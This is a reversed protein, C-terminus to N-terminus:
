VLLYFARLDYAVDPDYARPDYAVDQHVQYFARYFFTTKLVRQSHSLVHPHETRDQEHVLYIQPHRPNSMLKSRHGAYRPQDTPWTLLRNFVMVASLCSASRRASASAIKLLGSANKTLSSARRAAYFVFM